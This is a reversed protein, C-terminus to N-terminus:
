RETLSAPRVANQAAEVVWHRAYRTRADGQPMLENRDDGGRVPTGTRRLTNVAAGLDTAKVLLYDIDFTSVVIVSIGVGALAATLSALVGVDMLSGTGTVRLCRLDRACAVGAPVEGKRCVVSLGDATRAVSGFDGTTAWTPVTAAAPLQCVAFAGPVLVLAARESAREQDRRTTKSRTYPRPPRPTAHRAHTGFRRTTSDVARVRAGAARVPYAGVLFWLFHRHLLGAAATMRDGM